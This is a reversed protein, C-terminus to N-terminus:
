DQPHRAQEELAEPLACCADFQEIRYGRQEAVALTRRSPLEMRKVGADLAVLELADRSAKDRPRMCGLAIETAPFNAAISAIVGGVTEPTPPPEEAMPTGRTPSFVIVVITEPHPADALPTLLTDETGDYVAVHPVVHMGADRLRHYTAVYDDTGADLGFVERITATSPIELSVFDIVGALSRATAESMLGPHMNLILGTEAKAQRIVEIMEPDPLNLMTGDRASGGSLLVGIAGHEKLERCTELLTEPTTAPRMGRLYARDCHLCGLQCQTGSLSIPPFKAGPTYTKLHM